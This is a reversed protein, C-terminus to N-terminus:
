IKRYTSITGEKFNIPYEAGTSMIKETSLCGPISGKITLAKFNEMGLLVQYMAEELSHGDLKNPDDMLSPTFGYKLLERNMLLTAFVRINGDKFPHTRALGQALGVIAKLKEFANDSNINQQYELIFKNVEADYGNEPIGLEIYFNGGDMRYSKARFNLIMDKYGLPTITEAGMVINGSEEQKFQGPCISKYEVDAWGRFRLFPPINEAAIKHIKKIYEISLPEDLSGMMYEFADHMGQICGPERREYGIFGQEKPNKQKDVDVFLRFLETQPLRGYFLDYNGQNELHYHRSLLGSMREDSYAQKIYREKNKEIFAFLLAQNSHLNGCDEFDEQPVCKLIDHTNILDTDFFTSLNTNNPLKLM